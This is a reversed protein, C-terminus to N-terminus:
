DGDEEAGKVPLQRLSRLITDSLNDVKEELATFEKVFAVTRTNLRDVVEKVQELDSGRVTEARLTDYMDSLNGAVSRMLAMLDLLAIAEGRQEKGYLEIVRGEIKTLSEKIEDLDRQM